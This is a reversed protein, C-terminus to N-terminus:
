LAPVLVGPTVSPDARLGAVSATNVIAGGCRWGGSARETHGFDRTRFGSIMALRNGFRYGPQTEAFNDAVNM